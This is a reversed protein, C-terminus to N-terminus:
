TFYYGEEGDILGSPDDSFFGYIRQSEDAAGYDPLGEPAFLGIRKGGWRMDLATYATENKGKPDKKLIQWLKTEPNGDIGLFDDSIINRVDGVKLASDKMEMYFTYKAPPIVHRLLHRNGLSQAELSNTIWRCLFIKTKRSGYQDAGEKDLEGTVYKGLYDDEEDPDGLPKLNYYVVVVSARSVENKDPQDSKIINITDNLELETGPLAPNTTKWNFQQGEYDWWIQSNSQVCIEAMADIVKMPKRIWATFQYGPLWTDREAEADTINIDAPAISMDNELFDDLIDWPNVDQYVRVQQIVSDLDHDAAITGGEARTCTTLSTATKSEYKIIEEDIIIWKPDVGSAPEYETADDVNITAAGSTLPDDTVKGSTEQPVWSREAKKMFDKVIIDIKGNAPGKIAEIIGKFATQFEATDIGHFGKEELVERGEYYINRAILKKFYSGQVSSRTSVYPDIGVDSANEDDIFTYTVKANIPIGKEPNIETPLEKTTVLYPRAGSGQILQDNRRIFKYDKTTSAYNEPDKCTSRTNYCPEGTATCPAVSFTLSCAGLTMTLLRKPTRSIAVVKDNYTTM